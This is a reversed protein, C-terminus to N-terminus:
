DKDPRLSREPRLLDRLHQLSEVTELEAPESTTPKLSSPPFSPTTAPRALPGDVPQSFPFDPPAPTEQPALAADIADLAKEPLVDHRDDPERGSSKTATQVAADILRLDLTM